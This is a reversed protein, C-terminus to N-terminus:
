KQIYKPHKVFSWHHQLKKYFLNVTEWIKWKKLGAAEVQNYKESLVFHTISLLLIFSSNKFKARNKKLNSAGKIMSVLVLSSRIIFIQLDYCLWILLLFIRENRDDLLRNWNRERLSRLGVVSYWSQSNMSRGRFTTGYKLFAGTFTLFPTSVPLLIDRRIPGFLLPHFNRMTTPARFDRVRLRKNRPLKSDHCTPSGRNYILLLKRSTRGSAPAHRYSSYAIRCTCGAVCTRPLRSVTRFLEWLTAIRM